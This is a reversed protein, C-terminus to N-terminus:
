LRMKGEIIKLYEKESLKLNKEIEVEKMEGEGMKRTAQAVLSNVREPVNEVLLWFARAYLTDGALVAL